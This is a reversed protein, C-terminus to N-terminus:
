LYSWGLYLRRSTMTTFGSILYINYCRIAYSGSMDDEDEEVVRDEPKIYKAHENAVTLTLLHESPKAVKKKESKNDVSEIVPAEKPKLLHDDPSIQKIKSLKVDPIVPETPTPGKWRQHSNPTYLRDSTEKVKKNSV